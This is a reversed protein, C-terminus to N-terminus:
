IRNFSCVFSELIFAYYQLTFKLAECKGNNGNRATASLITGRYRSKLFAGDLFLVPRCYQFGNISGAFMVFIRKFLKIKPEVDLICHSGPNYQLLLERYDNILAYSVKEDGHLEAAVMEKGRWAHHYGIDLGYNKKMDRVVDIPRLLPKDRLEDALLTSVLKSDMMKSSPSRYVGRCTHENNLSRIYFYGNLTSLSAHVRWMCNETNRKSCEATVRTKDNKLYIYKFGVEVVYKRLKDHFEVVGGKFCQEGHSIYTKWDNSLYVKSTSPEM